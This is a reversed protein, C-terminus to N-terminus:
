EIVKKNNENILKKLRIIVEDITCNMDICDFAESLAYLWDTNTSNSGDEYGLTYYSGDDNMTIPKREYGGNLPFFNM